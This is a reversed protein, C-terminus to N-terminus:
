MEPHLIEQAKEMKRDLATVDLNGYLVDIISIAAKGNLRIRYINGTKGIISRIKGHYIRKAFDLFQNCIIESGILGIQPYKKDRILISGDGDIMGRWFHPSDELEKITARKTKGSVVGFRALDFVLQKSRVELRFVGKSTYNSKGIKQPELENIKHGSGLFKKFKLIHSVDTGALGIAVRDHYVCGDAMLFGIWYSSDPTVSSFSSQNLSLKRHGRMIINHRHLIGIITTTNSNFIKGIELIGKGQKYLDVIENEQFDNFKRPCGRKKRIWEGGESSGSPIRPHEREFDANECFRRYRILTM